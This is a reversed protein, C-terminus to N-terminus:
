HSLGLSVRATTHETQIGFLSQAVPVQIAAEISLGITSTWRVGPAAYLVTGGTNAGMTGDELRDRAASRGNLQLLLRAGSWSRSTFGANYLLVNGYRYGHDNTGNVRGLASAEWVGTAGAPMALNLGGTGTWAGTGTQLHADLRQGSADKLDNAGTPAAGGLVVAVLLPHVGATQVLGLMALLEADGLGHVSAVSAAEGLPRSSLDKFAYPLRGILALRNLPRWLGFAAVRYEREQEEGPGEDLANSKSLYREELGWTFQTPVVGGLVNAPFPTGCMCQSCAPVNRPSVIAVMLLLACSGIRRM